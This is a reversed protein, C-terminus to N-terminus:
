FHLDPLKKIDPYDFNGILKFDAQSTKKIKYAQQLCLAVMPFFDVKSAHNSDQM